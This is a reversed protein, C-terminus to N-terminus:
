ENETESTPPKPLPMWHTPTHSPDSGQSWEDDWAHTAVRIYSGDWTLIETEDRPATEIPIWGNNTKVAEYASLAKVIVKLTEISIYPKLTTGQSWIIQEKDPIRRNNSQEICINLAILAEVVDPQSIDADPTLKIKAMFRAYEMAKYVNLAIESYTNGFSKSFILASVGAAEMDDTINNIEIENNKM